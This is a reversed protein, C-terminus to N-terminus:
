HLPTRRMIAWAITSCVLAGFAAPLATGDFMLGIPAAIIVAGVTSLGAIISAAMGAVHGMKQMALANLNGFTLGAMFFVSVSWIFFAYFALADPILGIVNLALYSGAIVIQMVYAWKVIKRMGVRVVIASNIMTASSALVAMLAFWLPFTEARGFTEGYIQASSSLLAFMQGFGLTMVMTYLLVDRNSTVVKAAAILAKREMKRRNEPALTEPQRANLWILDILGVVVFCWFVGHWGFSDSVLKGISPAVAPALMFVMMVFSTVRAMERGEYRDRILALAVVRPGAVGIGQVVRAMLLWELTPAFAAAIAGLIFLGISWTITAKRGIADSIPGVFLVGLGMGLVFSTLVLQARNVDNPSLDAAIQPLAPLMADIAFAATASLAALLATFEPLGLPKTPRFM